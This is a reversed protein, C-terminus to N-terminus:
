RHVTDLSTTTTVLDLYSVLTTQQIHNGNPNPNHGTQTLDPCKVRNTKQRPSITNYVCYTYREFEHKRKDSRQSKSDHRSPSSMAQNTAPKKNASTNPKTSIPKMLIPPLQNTSPTNNTASIPTTMNTSNRISTMACNSQSLYRFTQSPSKKSTNQAIRESGSRTERLLFSSFFNWPQSTCELTNQAVPPTVQQESQPLYRWRKIGAVQQDAKVPNANTITHKKHIEEKKTIGNHKNTQGAQTDSRHPHSSWTYESHTNGTALSHTCASTLTMYKTRLQTGHTRHLNLTNQATFRQPSARKKQSLESQNDTHPHGTIRTSCTNIQTSFLHNPAVTTHGPDSRHVDGTQTSNTSNQNNRTLYDKTTNPLNDGRGANQVSSNTRGQPRLQTCYTATTHSNNTIITTSQTNNLLM